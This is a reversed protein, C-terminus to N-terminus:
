GDLRWVDVWSIHRGDALVAKIRRVAHSQRSISRFGASLMTTNYHELNTGDDSTPLRCPRLLPGISFYERNTYRSRISSTMELEGSTRRAKDKTQRSSVVASSQKPTGECSM